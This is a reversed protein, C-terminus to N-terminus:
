RCNCLVAAHTILWAGPPLGFSGKNAGRCGEQGKGDCRGRRLGWVCRSGADQGCCCMQAQPPVLHITAAPQCRGRVPSVFPHSSRHPGARGHGCPGPIVVRPPARASCGYLCCRGPLCGRGGVVSACLAEGLPLTCWCGGSSMLEALMGHLLASMLVTLQLPSRLYSRLGSMSQLGPGEGWGTAGASVRGQSWLLRVGPGLPGLSMAQPCAWCPLHPPVERGWGIGEGQAHGARTVPDACAVDPRLLRLSPDPQSTERGTHAHVESWGRGGASQCHFSGPLPGVLGSSPAIEPWCGLLSCLGGLVLHTLPCPGAVPVQPYTNAHSVRLDQAALWCLQLWVRLGRFGHTVFGRDWAVTRPLGHHCRTPCKGVKGVRWLSPM